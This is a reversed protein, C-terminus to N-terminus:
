QACDETQYEYAGMDVSKGCFRPKGTLDTTVDAPVASNLGADIAPSREKLRLNGNALDVFPPADADINHSGDDGLSADWSQGSSGSDQVLSYSVEPKSNDGRYIQPGNRATNGWVICNTLTPSSNLNYMGGGNTDAHNKSFTVNTLMPKSSEYTHLGGGNIRATNKLFVVNVLMPQGGKSFMGGGAEATNTRFTVNTLRPSSSTNFMGGGWKTATNGEFNVNVLTPSSSNDNYMGGGKDAPSSSNANGATITFGDLIATADTGSGTVVHYSNGGKINDTDTTVGNTDKIDNDDIDGSLITINHKWDRQDRSTEIGLFGGYLAAGNSLQFTDTLQKGPKYVGKAVWIQENIQEIPRATRLATQLDCAHSWDGRCNGGAGPAVFLVNPPMTPTATATPTPMKTPTPSPTPTHTATPTATPTPTNTPTPSPTPTHTATPTPILRPIVTTGILVDLVVIVILVGVGVVIWQLKSLNIM